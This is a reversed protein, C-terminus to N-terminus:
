GVRRAVVSHPIKQLLQEHRLGSAAPRRNWFPRHEFGAHRVFSHRQQALPQNFRLIEFRIGVFAVNIVAAQHPRQLIELEAHPQFGIADDTRRRETLEVDGHLIADATDPEIELPPAPHLRIEAIGVHEDVQRILDYLDHVIFLRHVRGDGLDALGIVAGGTKM